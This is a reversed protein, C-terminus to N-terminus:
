LYLGSRWRREMNLGKIVGRHVLDGITPRLKGGAAFLSHQLRSPAVVLLRIRHLTSDNALHDFFPSVLGLATLDTIDLYLM